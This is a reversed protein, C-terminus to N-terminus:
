AVEAVPPPAAPAAVPFDPEFEEALMSRNDSSSTRSRKACAGAPAPAGAYSAQMMPMPPAFVFVDLYKPELEPLSAVQSPRATSLSLNVQSWDESTQQRVQALYTLEVEGSRGDNALKVRVDYQPQWSAQMVLYSLELTFEGEEPMEVRVVAALRDNQRRGQKQALERKTRAIEEQLQKMQVELDLSAEANQLAQNSAFAFFQACDEPKMEGASLGKAFSKSEEGLARLWKRNDELANQRAQLLKLRQGLVDIQTMLTAVETEPPRTYYSTGIDVALIRTGLPGRGAARLSERLFQPLDNVRIEQEGAELRISGVRTVLARDPYVTVEKIPAILDTM